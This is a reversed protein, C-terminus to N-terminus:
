LRVKYRPVVAEREFENDSGAPDSDDDSRTFERSGPDHWGTDLRMSHRRSSVAVPSGPDEIHARVAEIHERDEENMASLAPGLTTGMRSLLRLRGTTKVQGDAMNVEVKVDAHRSRMPSKILVLLDPKKHATKLHRYCFLLLTISTTFSVASTTGALHGVHWRRDYVRVLDFVLLSDWFVLVCSKGLFFLKTFRSRFKAPYADVFGAVVLTPVYSVFFVNRWDAMMTFVCSLWVFQLVSVVYLEFEAICDKVLETSLMLVALTPIPVMLISLWICPRPMLGLLAFEGGFFGVWWLLWLMSSSVNDRCILKFLLNEMRTEKGLVQSAVTDKTEVRTINRAPEVVRIERAGGATFSHKSQDDM